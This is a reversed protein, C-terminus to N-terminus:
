FTEVKFTYTAGSELNISDVGTQAQEGNVYVMWVYGTTEYIHEEGFVSEVMLGYPGDEGDIVGIASLAAGLTTEKTYIGYKKNTGDKSIVELDARGSCPKVEDLRTFRFDAGAKRLRRRSMAAAMEESDCAIWRRGLMHAAEPLSGSGCFFDGTLDGAETSAEIIRKMLELPKQTAYGTREASTRGVMDISWVDKM